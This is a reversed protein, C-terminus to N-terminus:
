SASTRPRRSCCAPRRTACGPEPLGMVDSPPRTRTGSRRASVTTRATSGAATSCAGTSWCSCTRTSRGPRRRRCRRGARGTASASPSSPSSATRASAPARRARGRRRQVLPRTGAVPHWTPPTREGVAGTPSATPRDPRRTSSSRRPSATSRTTGSPAAPPSCAATRCPRTGVASCTSPRPRACQLEPGPYHWVRTGYRHEAAAIETTARGPSSCCAAPPCCPPTFPSYEPTSRSCGGCARPRPPPWIPPWTSCATSAPTAASRTTSRWCSWTSCVRRRCDVLAGRRGPEGLLALDTATAVAGVRRDPPRPRRAAVRHQPPRREGPGPRGRGARAARADRRRRPRRGGGAAPTRTSRGSPCSRGRRGTPPRATRTSRAWRYFAANQGPRAEITLLVLEPRGDGDVDAVPRRRRERPVGTPCQQWRGVRGDRSAPDLKRGVRVFGTNPGEPADVVAVVM